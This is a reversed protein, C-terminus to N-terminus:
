NAVHSCVYDLVKNYTKLDFHMGDSSSDYPLKGTDDKLYSNIDLYHVGMENALNLYEVNLEDITSNLVLGDEVTAHESTDEKKASVPPVSIIYINADEVKEQVEKIFDRYGDVMTENTAWGLGNSGLMIYINKFGSQVVGDIALVENGNYDITTNALKGPHLGNQALVNEPNLLFYGSYGTSISDGIFLCTDLYEKDVPTSEPVPNSVSTSTSIDTETITTIETQTVEENVGNPNNNVNSTINSDGVKDKTPIEGTSNAQFMYALFSCIYVIFFIFFVSSLKFVPKKKKKKSNSKGKNSSVNTNKGVNRSNQQSM